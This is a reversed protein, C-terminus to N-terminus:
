SQGGLTVTHGCADIEFDQGRRAIIADADRRVEDLLPSKPDSIKLKLDSFGLFAVRRYDGNEERHRDAYCIGTSYISMFLRQADPKMNGPVDEAECDNCKRGHPADIVVEPSYPQRATAERMKRIVIHGCAARVQFPKVQEVFYSRVEM